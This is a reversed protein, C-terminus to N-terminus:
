CKATKKKKGVAGRAQVKRIYDPAFPVERATNGMDVSVVGIKEATKVATDSLPKVYAERLLLASYAAAALGVLAVAFAEGISATGRPRRVPRSNM